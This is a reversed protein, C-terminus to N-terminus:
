SAELAVPLSMVWGWLEKATKDVPLAALLVMLLRQLEAAPLCTLFDWVLKPDQDQLQCALDSVLWVRDEFDQDQLGTVPVPMNSMRCYVGHQRYDTTHLTYRRNVTGIDRRCRLCRALKM